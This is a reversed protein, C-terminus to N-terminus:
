QSSTVSDIEMATGNENNTCKVPTDTTESAANNNDSQEQVKDVDMKQVSAGTKNDKSKHTIIIKQHAVIAFKFTNM